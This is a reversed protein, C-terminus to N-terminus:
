RCAAPSLGPSTLSAPASPSRKKDISIKTVVRDTSIVDGFAAAAQAALAPEKLINLMKARETGSVDAGVIVGQADAFIEARERGSDVHLTWRM